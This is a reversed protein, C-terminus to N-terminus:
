ILARGAESKVQNLGAQWVYVALHMNGLAYYVQGLGLIFGATGGPPGQDRTSLLRGGPWLRRELRRTKRHPLSNPSLGTRSPSWISPKVASGVVLGQPQGPWNRPARSRRERITVSGLLRPRFQRGEGPALGEALSCRLVVLDLKPAVYVKFEKEKPELVRAFVAELKETPTRHPPMKDDTPDKSNNRPKEEFSLNLATLEDNSFDDDRLHGDGYKGALVRDVTAM